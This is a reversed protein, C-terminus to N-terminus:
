GARRRDVLRQEYDKHSWEHSRDIPCRWVDGATDLYHLEDCRERTCWHGYHRVLRPAHLKPWEDEPTGAAQLAEKRRGLNVVCEPCPIGREPARSDRLAGEVHSVLTATDGLLSSVLPALDERRALDTLVWALYSAASAVDASVLTIDDHGIEERITREHLTLCTYPDRMDLEEVSEGARSANVLRWQATVYDAHPGALNAPESNVGREEAEDPMLALTDVIATLNDRIKGLCKPCAYEGWGLHSTCRNRVRCHRVPNGDDDHRCPLCGSCDVVGCDPRHERRLHAQAERDWRCTM